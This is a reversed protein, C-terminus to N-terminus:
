QVLTIKWPLQSQDPMRAPNFGFCLMYGGGGAGCIKLLFDSDRLGLAWLERLADPVMPRFWELQLASILALHQQFTSTNAQLWADLMARHAPLYNTELMNRFAFQHQSQELFWQVLPGTKRPLATDLLAILPPQAPWAAQQPLRVEHKNEILLPRNCYSTLPDIGSSNGHFYSEMRAFLQKLATLDNLPAPAYRAYVGACLAGSSGLGYGQPINSEFYLGADLDAAFRATDLQLEALVKSHAFDRLQQQKAAAEAPHAFAWHGSCQSLPVALAPAGTLLVHEGFLLLKSPFIKETM